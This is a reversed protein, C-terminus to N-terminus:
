QEPFIREREELGQQLSLNEKRELQHQVQNHSKSQGFTHPCFHYYVVHLGLGLLFQTYGKM